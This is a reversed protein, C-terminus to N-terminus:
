KIKIMRAPQPKAEEKKPLYLKLIGDEYKAEIKGDEVTEPLAFSREFSSYSFERRTYKEGEKTENQMEKESSITLMGNDVTVKFDDKKMGPAAVEVVFGNDDEKVNVAPVSVNMGALAPVRDFFEGDFFNDFFRSFVPNMATNRKVIAM